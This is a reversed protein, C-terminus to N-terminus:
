SPDSDRESTLVLRIGTGINLELCVEYIAYLTCQEGAIILLCLVVVPVDIPAFFVEYRLTKVPQPKKGVFSDVM